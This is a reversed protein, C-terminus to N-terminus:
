FLCRAAHIKVEKGNVWLSGGEAHVEGNFVGHVSDYRRTHTYTPTLTKSRCGPTPSHGTDPFTDPATICFNCVM